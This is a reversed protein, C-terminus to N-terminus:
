LWYYKPECMRLIPSTEHKESQAMTKHFRQTNPKYTSESPISKGWYFTGKRGYSSQEIKKKFSHLMRGTSAIHNIALHQSTLYPKEAFTRQFDSEHWCRMYIRNSNQTVKPSIHRHKGKGYHRPGSLRLGQTWDCRDARGPEYMLIHETPGWVTLRLPLAM